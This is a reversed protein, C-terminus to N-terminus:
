AQRSFEADLRINRDAASEIVAAMVIDEKTGAITEGTALKRQVELSVIENIAIECRAHVANDIWEQASLAVVHLAKNEADTLTVTYTKTM